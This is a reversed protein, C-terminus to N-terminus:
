VRWKSAAIARLIEETSRPRLDEGICLVTMRRAEDLDAGAARLIGSVTSRVDLLGLVLHETGVWNHRHRRQEELTAELVVMSGPSFPLESSMMSGPIESLVREVETQLSEPSVQLRELVKIGLGAGDRLIGMLLHEPAVATHRRSRAEETALVIVRRARETFRELM